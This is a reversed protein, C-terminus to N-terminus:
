AMRLWNQKFQQLLIKTKKLDGTLYPRIYLKFSDLRWRGLACLDGQTMGLTSRLSAGGVRFSHGKIGHFGGSTLVEEIRTATQHRTLHARDVGALRILQPKGPKATKTNRVTLTVVDGLNKSTAFVVDSTLVSDAFNIKGGEVTYTLEALRALGWFAVVAVDLVARDLNSGLVLSKWLWAMHWLMVPLKKGTKTASEDRRASVKLLLDIRPKNEDPFIASHYTHWAKLGALYKKRSISSNKGENLTIDNRGAWVCFGKVMAISLPLTFPTAKESKMFTKFKAVASNYGILTLPKWGSLIHIDAKSPLAYIRVVFLSISLRQSRNEMVHPRQVGRLLGDAMNDASVVRKTTIDLESEILLAQIAKWEQNLLHDRSKVGIRIAVTELWAITCNPSGEQWCEKLRLQCLRPGVLVGIGFSTSADGVWNIELPTTVPCLRTESYISLTHLWLELDEWVDNPVTRTAWHKKWENM